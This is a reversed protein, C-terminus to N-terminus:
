GQAAPEPAAPTGNNGEGEAPAPADASFQSRKSRRRPKQEGAAAHDTMYARVPLGMARFALAPAEAPAPAEDAVEAAGGCAATVVLIVACAWRGARSRLDLRKM